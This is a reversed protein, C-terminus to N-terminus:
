PELRLIQWHQDNRQYVLRDHLRNRRGQWFEIAQPQVSYGGWFEPYPVSQGELAQTNKELRTELEERTKLIRSQQSTMAGIQSGRPRSHFYTESLAAPVKVVTGEVRVQRELLDWWFVLAVQPNVALEQAKRGEYHTYFTFGGEHFGKFLVMRASPRGQADATALTMATPEIQGAATAADLWQQFQALPDPMLSSELLPPNKTYQSM